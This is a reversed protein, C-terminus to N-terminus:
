VESKKSVIKQTDSIRKDSYLVVDKIVTKQVASILLAMGSYNPKKNVVPLLIDLADADKAYFNRSYSFKGTHASKHIAATIFISEFKPLKETHVVAVHDDAGYQYNRYKASGFMDITTTNSEFIEVDNGIYASIGEDAEGATVFPLIGEIRDASKLRKGRTSKGFLKELNFQKWKWSTFDILVQQEEDTLIYNNLGTVKLYAQLEAIHRAQLEAIHRAQLEAIFSEMFNFDIKGNKQPLQITKSKIKEWSCMNDYGFNSNLFTFANALFLGQKETMSFKASLSFVRAHTVMKYDFQRYFANGFMDITISNKSFIKAKVDTKGLIGYNNVGATVVYTGKNNIHSKKIDFDGNQSAFM